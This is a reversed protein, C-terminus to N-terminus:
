FNCPSDGYIQFGWVRIEGYAGQLGGYVNATYTTQQSKQSDKGELIAPKEVLFSCVLFVQSM